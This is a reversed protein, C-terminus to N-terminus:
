LAQKTSLVSRQLRVRESQRFRYKKKSNQRCSIQGISAVGKGSIDSVALSDGMKEKGSERMSCLVGEAALKISTYWVIRVPDDKM